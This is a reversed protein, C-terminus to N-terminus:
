FAANILSAICCASAILVVAFILMDTVSPKTRKETGM